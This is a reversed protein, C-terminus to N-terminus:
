FSADTWVVPNRRLVPENGRDSKGPTFIVVGFQRRM